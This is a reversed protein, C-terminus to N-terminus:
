IVALAVPVHRVGYGLIDIGGISRPNVRIQVALFAIFPIRRIPVPPRSFSKRIYCQIFFPLSQDLLEKLKVDLPETVTITGNLGTWSLCIQRYKKVSTVVQFTPFQRTQSLLTRQSRVNPLYRSRSRSGVESRLD